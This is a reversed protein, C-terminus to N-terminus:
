VLQSYFCLKSSSSPKKYFTATLRQTVEYHKSWAERIMDSGKEGIMISPANTNANVITPMISADIVRLNTTGIVRLESDVVSTSDNRKGM